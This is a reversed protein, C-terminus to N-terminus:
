IVFHLLIFAFRLKVVHLFVCYLLVSSWPLMDLITRISRTTLFKFNNLMAYCQIHRLIIHRFEGYRITVDCLIVLVCAATALMDLITRISRTTLFSAFCMIVYVLM